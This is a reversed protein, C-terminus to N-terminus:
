PFIGNVCIVFRAGHPGAGKPEAGQLDSLAFNNSGNGGYTTGLLGFLLTNSSIDLLRGDAPLMTNPYTNGAILSLEGLVCSVNVAGQSFSGGPSGFLGAPAFNLSSPSIDAATLSQDQIKAGNVANDQIKAGNVANNKIQKTGIVNKGLHTAAIAGGGLALFVAVTAMVNAYTLKARVKGTM